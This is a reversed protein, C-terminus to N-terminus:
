QVKFFHSGVPRNTRPKGVSCKTNQLIVSDDPEPNAAMCFIIPEYGLNYGTAPILQQAM